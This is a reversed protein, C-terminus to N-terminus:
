AFKLENENAYRVGNDTMLIYQSHADISGTCKCRMGHWIVDKGVFRLPLNLTETQSLFAEARDIPIPIGFAGLEGGCDRVTVLTAKTNHTEVAEMNVIKTSGPHKTGGSFIDLNSYTAM